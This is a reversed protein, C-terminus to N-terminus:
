SYSGFGLAAESRTTWVLDADLTKNIQEETLPRGREVGLDPLDTDRPLLQRLEL